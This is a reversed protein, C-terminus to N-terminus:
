RRGPVAFGDVLEASIRLMTPMTGPEPETGSGPLRAFWAAALVDGVLEAKGTVVVNWDLEGETGISDAEYAVIQGAAGDLGADIHSYVLINGNDMLHNVPRITPLAHRSYALRGFAVSSLLHLATRNDVQEM